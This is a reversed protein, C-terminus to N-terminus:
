SHWVRIASPGNKPQHVVPFRWGTDPEEGRQGQRAGPRSGSQTRRRGVRGPLRGDFIYREALLRYPVPESQGDEAPASGLAAPRAFAPQTQGSLARVLERAIEGRQDDSAPLQTWVARMGAPSSGQRQHRRPRRRDTSTSGMLRSSPDTSGADADAPRCPLV